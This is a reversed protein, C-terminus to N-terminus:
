ENKVKNDTKPPTPENEIEDINLRFDVGTKPNHYAGFYDLSYTDNLEEKAKKLAEEESTAEIIFDVDLKINGWINFQKKEM